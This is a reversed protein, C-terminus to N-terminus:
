DKEYENKNIITTNTVLSELASATKSMDFKEILRYLADKERNIQAHNNIIYKLNNALIDVSDTPFVFHEGMPLALDESSGCQDSVVAPLGCVMAENVVLGWTEASDSPLVLYDCSIYAKPIETQNLFGTFTIINKGYRKELKKAYKKLKIKLKGEGVMLLHVQHKSVNTNEDELLKEIAIVLDLPRKKEIFKGCFLFCIAYNNIGWDKRLQERQPKLKKAAKLFRQNDIGYPAFTLQNESINFGKYQRYNASGIYLFHDIRKFLQNLLIKRIVQKLFPRSGLDNSEGRLLVAINLKAAQFVAQWYAQVQWGNIFLATVKQSQLLHKFNKIRRVGRFRSIDAKKPYTELFRHPYGNLMNLDWQFTKGFEQDYSPNVGHDSLFWVEFSIRNNRALSQWIPIQYQIPHTTLIVLM